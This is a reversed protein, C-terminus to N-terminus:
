GGGPKRLGRPLRLANAVVFISSASMALASGFPTVLGAMAFPLAIANYIAAMVFNQLVLRNAMKAVAYADVIGGLRGDLLVFDAAKQSVDNAGAPAFSVYAGAIAPLDNLGDGVMVVKHGAGRLARLREIKDQPTMDSRSADIGLVQALAQVADRADGSLVEVKLGLEKLQRVTAPADDRLAGTFRFTELLQGNKSLTCSRDAGKGAEALAWDARGLRYVDGSLSMEMGQGPFERVTAGARAPIQGSGALARSYPHRSFAAMQRAIAMNRPAHSEPNDLVPESLTLTGTKDFVVTDAERLRELGDGNRIIIGKNFLERAAVVQVMPVALGLACPCTIILATIAATAAAHFDHAVIMWGAFTSFAALHVAPTYIRAARDALRRYRSKGAAAGEMLAVM